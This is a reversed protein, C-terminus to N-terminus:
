ELIRLARAPCAAVGMSATAEEGDPVERSTGVASFGDDDLPFLEYDVVGCQGHAECRSSDVAIRM